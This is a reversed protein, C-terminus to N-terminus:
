NNRYSHLPDKGHDCHRSSEALLELTKKKKRGRGKKGKRYKEQPPGVRESPRILCTIILWGIHPVEAHSPM